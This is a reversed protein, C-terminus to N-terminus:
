HPRISAILAQVGAWVITGVAALFGLLIALGIRASIADRGVRLNRLFARDERLMELAKEDALNLGVTGAFRTLMEQSTTKAAVLVAAEMDRRLEAKAELVALRVADQLQRESYRVADDRKGDM